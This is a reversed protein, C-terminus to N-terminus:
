RTDPRRRVRRGVDINSKDIFAPGTLRPRGGGILQRQEPVAVALRHRPLGAPIAAPRRGVARQRGQHRRGAGRQHRVHRDQGQQGRRAASQVAALAIPAGLTIVNDIAPDQQLKAAITSEVSPMDTGNVNLNELQAASPRSSAPAAPNSHSRARSRSSASSKRPATGNLRKGAAQGAISRTRASTSRARGHGELRRHRRQLAVVPIGADRGGQRRLWREPKALHARHRRGETSPPRSSTPRTAAGPTPPTSCSSTTRPRPPRPARASSTGSPTARRRTPSWRSRSARPTPGARASGSGGSDPKGGTSSCAALSMVSASACALVAVRRRNPFNM